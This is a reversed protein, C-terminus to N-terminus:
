AASEDERAEQKTVKCVAKTACFDREDACDNFCHPQRRHPQRGPEAECQDSGGQRADTVRETVGDCCTPKELGRGVPAAPRVPDGLPQARGALPHRALGSGKASAPGPWARRTITLDDPVDGSPAPDCSRPFHSPTSQRMIPGRTAPVPGRKARPIARDRPPPLCRIAARRGARSDSLARSRWAPCYPSLGCTPCGSWKGSFRGAATMTPRRTLPLAPTRALRSEQHSESSCCYLSISM